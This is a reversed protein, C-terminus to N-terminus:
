HRWKKIMARRVLADNVEEM